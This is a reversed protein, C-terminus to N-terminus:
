KGVRWEDAKKRKKGEKRREGKVKRRKYKEMKRVLREDESETRRVKWRIRHGRSRRTGHRERL